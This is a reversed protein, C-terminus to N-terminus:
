MGTSRTCGTCPSSPPEPRLIMRRVPPPLGAGDANEVAHAFLIGGEEFKGSVKALMAQRHGFDIALIQILAGIEFLVEAVSREKLKQRLIRLPSVSREM